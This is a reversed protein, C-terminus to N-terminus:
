TGGILYGTLHEIPASVTSDGANVQAELVQKVRTTGTEVEVIVPRFGPPLSGCRAWSLTVIARESFHYGRPLIDVGVNRGARNRVEFRERGRVAGPPLYFSHGRVSLLDGQGTVEASATAAGPMQDCELFVMGPPTPATRGGSACAVVLLPSARLLARRFSSLTRM